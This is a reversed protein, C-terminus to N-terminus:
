HQGQAQLQHHIESESFRKKYRAIYTAARMDIAPDGVGWSGKDEDSPWIKSEWKTREEYAKYNNKEIYKNSNFINFISFFSSSKRQRNKGGM